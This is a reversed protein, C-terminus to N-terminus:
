DPGMNPNEYDALMKEYWNASQVLPSYKQQSYLTIRPRMGWSEAGLGPIRMLGVRFHEAWYLVLAYYWRDLELEPQSRLSTRLSDILWIQKAIVEGAWYHCVSRYERFNSLIRKPGTKLATRTENFYQLSVKSTIFAAKNRSVSLGADFLGLCFYAMLGASIGLTQRKVMKQLIDRQIEPFENRPFIANTAAKYGSLQSSNAQSTRQYFHEFGADFIEIARMASFDDNPYSRFAFVYGFERHIEEWNLGGLILEPDFRTNIM